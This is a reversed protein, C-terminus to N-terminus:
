PSRTTPSTGLTSASSSPNATAAARASSAFSSGSLAATAQTLSPIDEGSEPHMPPRDAMSERLKRRSCLKARLRSASSFVATHTTLSYNQQQQQEECCEVGCLHAPQPQTAAPPIAADRSNDGAEVPRDFASMLVLSHINQKDIDVYEGGLPKSTYCGM